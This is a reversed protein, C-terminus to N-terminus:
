VKVMVYKVKKKKKKKKLKKVKYKNPNLIMSSSFAFQPKPQRSKIVSSRAKAIKARAEYLPVQATEYEARREMENTRYKHRLERQLDRSEYREAEVDDHTRGTAKAIVWSVAGQKRPNHPQCDIMDPFNDRDSDKLPSRSWFVGKYKKSLMVM